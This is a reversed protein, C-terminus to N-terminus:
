KANKKKMFYKKVNKVFDKGRDEFSSYQDFSSCAPALLITSFADKQFNNKCSRVANKMNFCKECSFINALRDYIYDSSEGILYIKKIRKKLKYMEKFNKNKLVGGMILHINKFSEISKIASSLNTAKSDNIILIERNQFIRQLRHQLGRFSIIAKIYLKNKYKLIRSVAYTALLNQNNHQGLLNHKIKNLNLTKKDFYNDIIKNEIFSIGNKLKKLNSIPIVNHNIKKVNKYISESYKDDVSIIAYQNKQLNKFINKKVLSYQKISKYRDTHDESINLLISIHAQFSPASELQFSSLEVVYKSYRRNDLSNFLSPRINGGLFVNINQESIMKHILSVTTSKGNTGTVAIVKKPNINNSFIELDRFIPIKLTNPKKLLHNNKDIGPSLIIFKVKHWNIIRPHKFLINKYKKKIKKRVSLNEDWIIININKRRYYNIASIGNEGLGFIFIKKSILNNM